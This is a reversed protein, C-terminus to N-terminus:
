SKKCQLLVAGFFILHTVNMAIPAIHVGIPKIWFVTSIVIGLVLIPNFAVLWKPLGDKNQLILIIYIVSVLSIAIRLVWVLVQVNDEYVSLYYDFDATGASRQFVEAAFYRSSVWIGGITFSVVGSILLAISLKENTKKFFKMLGFYGSFYLPVGSIAIFHGLSARKLPVTYLMSIEGEPGEPIFHLLYEGIGVIIAGIIGSILLNQTSKNEKNM